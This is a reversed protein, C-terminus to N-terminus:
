FDDEDTLEIRPQSIISNLERYLDEENEPLAGPFIKFDSLGAETQSRHWSQFREKESRFEDM